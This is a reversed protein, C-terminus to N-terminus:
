RTGCSADTPPRRSSSSATTRPSRWGNAFSLGDVVVEVQGRGGDSREAGDVWRLLRGTRTRQLMEDKWRDVGFRQSSDSFWVAGDSTEAANNCFRMPVGDVRAVLVEIAGSDPDVRLLGRMADCVLLRGDRLVEIGMPRGGTRCVREIRDGDPRMRLISGDETGTVVWGTHRGAEMVVVDEAGMGSVPHM